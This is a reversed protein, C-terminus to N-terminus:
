VDSRNRIACDIAMKLPEDFVGCSMLCERRAVYAFFPVINDVILYDVVKVRKSRLYTASTSKM